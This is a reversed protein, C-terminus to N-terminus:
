DLGIYMLLLPIGYVANLNWLSHCIMVIIFSVINGKRIRFYEFTLSLAFALSIITVLNLVSIALHMLSFLISTGIISFSPSGTAHRLVAQLLFQFFLTETFPADIFLFIRAWFVTEDDVGQIVGSPEYFALCYIITVILSWALALGYVRIFFSLKDLELTSYIADVSCRKM